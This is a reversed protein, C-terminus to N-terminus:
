GVATISADAVAHGQAYWKSGDTFIEIWDGVAAASATFQLTDAALNATNTDGEELYVITDSDGTTAGAAASGYAIIHVDNSSATRMFFRANWGAIKTSMQPLFVDVDATSNQDCMFTKGSDGPTLQKDTTDLSEVFGFNWSPYNGIKANAM